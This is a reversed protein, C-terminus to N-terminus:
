RLLTVTGKKVILEGKGCLAEVIYVYVAPSAPEGNIRGDWGLQPNNPNFNRKEFIIKGGRDYVSFRKISRIGRGIPYYIDNLGDYNPTFANPLLLNADDCRIFVNISDSAVCGSDSTVKIVYSYNNEATFTPAPCTICHLDGPPAWQYQVINSSYVPQLIGLSNYALTTDAGANVLAAAKVNVSFVASDSFCGAADRLTATYQTTQLPNVVPNYAFPNEIDPSSNWQIDMGPPDLLLSVTDGPCIYSFPNLATAAFPEYVKIHITDISVCGARNTATAAYYADSQPMVSVTDCSVCPISLNSTWTVPDNHFAILTDAVGACLTDSEPIVRLFPIGNVVTQKALSDQCGNIDTAFLTVPKIGSSAFKYDPPNSSYLTDAPLKWMWRSITDQPRYPQSLNTFSLSDYICISSDIQFNLDPGWVLINHNLTATDKCYQPGNDIVVFAPFTGFAQPQFVLQNSRIPALTTGGVHYTYWANPNSYSNEVTFTTTSKRCVATDSNRLAPAATHIPRQFLDSCGTISDHITLVTNFSGSSPFIHVPSLVSDNQGGDGYDWLFSSINGASLNTFVVRDRQACNINFNFSAIVGITEINFSAGTGACGNDYPRVSITKTGLSSYKHSITTDSASASTGDGFQWIFQNAGTATAVFTAADSACVSDNLPYANINTPPIGFAVTPFAYSATCGESTTVSVQPSYSGRNTYTHGANNVTTTGSSGDGFDWAYSTVSSGAPLTVTATFNSNAPICGSRPSVSGTVPPNKVEIAVTASASCGNTDTVNLSATYNGFNAYPHTLPTASSNSTNGDGFDWSYSAQTKGTATFIINGPRCIYNRDATLGVANPQQITVQKTVQATSQTYIVLMMVNYTGAAAYTHVPNASNSGSGDGFDWVYGVIGQGGQHTFQIRSPACFNGTQSQFTFDLPQANGGITFFFLLVSIFIKM